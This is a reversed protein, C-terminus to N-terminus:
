WGAPKPLMQGPPEDGHRCAHAAAWMAGTIRVLPLPLRGRKFRGLRERRRRPLARRERLSWARTHLEFILCGPRRVTRLVALTGLLRAPDTFPIPPPAPLQLVHGGDVREPSPYGL